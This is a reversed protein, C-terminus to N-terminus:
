VFNPVTEFPRRFVYIGSCDQKADIKRSNLYEAIINNEM